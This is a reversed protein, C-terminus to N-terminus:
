IHLIQYGKESSSALYGKGVLGKAVDEPDKNFKARFAKAIQGLNFSRKSSVCRNVYLTNLIFLEEPELSCGMRGCM